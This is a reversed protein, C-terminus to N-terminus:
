RRPRVARSCSGSWTHSRRPSRCLAAPRRGTRRPVPRTLARVRGEQGGRLAAETEDLREHHHQVIERARRGPRSRTRRARTPRAQARAPSGSWRPWSTASPIPSELGPLPRGRPHDAPSPPRRRAARREKLPLHAWRRAPFSSSAGLRGSTAKVSSAPTPFSTSSGATHAASRSCSRRRRPRSARGHSGCPWSRAWADSGWVKECQYHDLGRCSRRARRRSPM